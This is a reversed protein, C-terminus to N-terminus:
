LDHGGDHPDGTRHPLEARHAVRRVRGRPDGGGSAVLLDLDSRETATGKAVSGFVVARAIGYRDFVPALRRQMEFVNPGKEM